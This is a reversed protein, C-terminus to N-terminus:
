VHARGIEVPFIVKYAQILLNVILTGYRKNHWDTESGAGQLDCIHIHDFGHNTLLPISQQSQGGPYVRVEVGSSDSITIKTVGDSWELGRRLNRRLWDNTVDM